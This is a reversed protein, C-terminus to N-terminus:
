AGKPDDSLERYLSLGAQLVLHLQTATLETKEKYDNIDFKRVVELAPAQGPQGTRLVIRVVRNGLEHRISEVAELGAHDSEMVVDMLILAIDTERRMLEVAERGTYASLLRLPRGLVTFSSVALQTVKHIDEDDDVVLIKWPALAAVDGAPKAPAFTMLDDARGRTTM